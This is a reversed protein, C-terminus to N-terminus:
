GRSRVSGRGACNPCAKTVVVVEYRPGDAVMEQVQIQGCGSCEECRRPPPRLREAEAADVAKCASEWEPRIAEQLVKRLPDPYGEAILRDLAQAPRARPDDGDFDEGLVEGTDSM